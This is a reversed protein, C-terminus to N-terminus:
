YVEALAQLQQQLTAQDVTLDLQNVQELRASLTGILSHFAREQDDGGPLKSPDALGWHVKKGAGIWLPCAENAANDCVTIVFDPAFSEFEDWSQSQLGSVDIGHVALAALSGPYVQGAPQSGASRVEFGPKLVHRAVAEACISRCRNHTCVFLLKM